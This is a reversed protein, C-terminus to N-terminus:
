KCIFGIIFKYGHTYFDNFFCEMAEEITLSHAALKDNEFDYEFGSPIFKDWSTMVIFIYLLHLKRKQKM